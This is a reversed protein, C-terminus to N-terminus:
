HTGVSPWLCPHRCDTTLGIVTLPTPGPCIWRLSSTRFPDFALYSWIQGSMLMEIRNLDMIQSLWEYDRMKKLWESTSKKIQKSDSNKQMVWFAQTLTVFQCAYM